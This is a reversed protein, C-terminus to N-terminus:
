RGVIDGRTSAAIALLEDKEAKPVKFKDLSAALDAAAASFQAETIKMGSHATKMDKGNYKQPGGTAHAVFIVVMKKLHAVNEPTPDWVRGEGKRTINVNPNVSVRAVFDDVVATIAPEGGLREYLSKKKGANKCEPCTKCDGKCNADCDAKMTSDSSKCGFAALTVLSTISLTKWYNWSM